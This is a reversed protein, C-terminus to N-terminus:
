RLMFEEVSLSGKRLNCRPCLLQLNDPWNSGGKSLPVVHDVHYGATLDTGSWPCIGKQKDYLKRIDAIVYKGDANKKLSRRNQNCVRKLENYRELNNRRWENSNAYYKAKEEDSLKSRWNRAYTNVEDKKLTRRKAANAKVKEPNNIGWNRVKEKIAEANEAYNKRRYAKIKEQNNNAYIRVKAAIKEKNSQYYAAQNKRVEETNQSYYQMSKEKIAEKNRQYHAKQLAKVKDPNKRRQEKAYANACKRCHRKRINGTGGECFEIM